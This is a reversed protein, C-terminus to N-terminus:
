DVQLLRPPCSLIRCRVDLLWLALMAVWSRLGFLVLVGLAFGIGAVANLSADNLPVWWFLTPHAFFGDLRSGRNNTVLKAFYPQVPSIGNAGMLASNQHYAGLFAFAYVLGLMRLMIAKTLVFLEAMPNRRRGVHPAGRPM